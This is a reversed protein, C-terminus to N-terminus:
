VAKLGQFGRRAPLGFACQRLDLAQSAPPHVYFVFGSDACFWLKRLFSDASPGRVSLDSAAFLYAIAQVISAFVGCVIM